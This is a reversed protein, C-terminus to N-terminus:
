VVVDSNGGLLSCNWRNVSVLEVKKQLIFEGHADLLLFNWSKQYNKNPYGV